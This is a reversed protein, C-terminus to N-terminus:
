ARLVRGNVVKVRDGIRLEGEGMQELVLRTGDELRVTIRYRDGERSKEIKNGVYAGGLAGAVTAVDNGRGGGIQHGIVGGALGGLITGLVAPEDSGVRYLEIRDVVGYQITEVVRPAPDARPADLDACGMMTAAAALLPAVWLARGIRVGIWTPHFGRAEMGIDM